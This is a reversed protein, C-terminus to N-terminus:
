RPDELLLDSLAPDLAIRQRLAAKGLRLRSRTTEVPARAAEAVEDITLGAVCHLVLVEAQAEPLEDLLRLLVDRRRAALAWDHESPQAGDLWGGALDDAGPEGQHGAAGERAQDGRGNWMAGQAVDRPRRRRAKLATLTAIRCAFHRTSCDARFAPLARVFGLTADQFVDEVDPDRPGLVRRVMQLMLPGVTVILTRVAGPEDRRCLRVLPALDDVERVAWTPAAEPERREGRGSKIVKLVERHHEGPARFPDGFLLSKAARQDPPVM